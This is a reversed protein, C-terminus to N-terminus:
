GPSRLSPSNDPASFEADQLVFIYISCVNSAHQLQPSCVFNKALWRGISQFIEQQTSPLDSECWEGEKRLHHQLSKMLMMTQWKRLALALEQGQLRCLLSLSQARRLIRPEAASADCRGCCVMGFLFDLPNVQQYVNVTINSTPQQGGMGLMPCVWFCCSTTSAAFFDRSDVKACAKSSEQVPGEAKILTRDQFAKPLGM